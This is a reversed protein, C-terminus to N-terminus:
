LRFITRIFRWGTFVPRDRKGELMLGLANATPPRAAPNKALCAAVVKEWVLPIPKGGRDLEVRRAAMPPPVWALAQERIAGRFYPRDGTLLEYIIAGIGYIDDLPVATAGTMQQPSIYVPHGANKTWSKDDDNWYRSIAFDGVKLEGHGNVMLNAAKIAGHVVKQQHAYHIANCLALIWPRIEDVEFFREPRAALLKHLSTGDVYEMSIAASRGDTEFSYTRIIHPHALRRNAIVEERLEKMTDVDTTLDARLFRLAVKTNEIERDLALWVVGMGGKGLERVLEYRGFLIAVESRPPSSPMDDILERQKRHDADERVFVVTKGQGGGGEAGQAGPVTHERKGSLIKEKLGEAYERGIRLWQSQQSSENAFLPAITGAFKEYSELEVSLERNGQGGIVDFSIAPRGVRARDVKAFYPEGGNSEQLQARLKAKFLEVPRDDLGADFIRVKEVLDRPSAVLRLRQSKAAAGVPPAPPDVSARGPVLWIMLAQAMDHYLMPYGVASSWQCRACTFRTLAGSLLEDKRAPDLTVNLSPWTTFAQEHRCQGCTVTETKATSVASPSEHLKPRLDVPRHRSPTRHERPPRRDVTARSINADRRTGKEGTWGTFRRM